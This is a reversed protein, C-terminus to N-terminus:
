EKFEGAHEHTKLFVATHSRCRIYSMIEAGGYHSGLSDKM